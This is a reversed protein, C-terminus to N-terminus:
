FLRWGWKNFYRAASRIFNLVGSLSKHAERQWGHLVLADPCYITRWGARQLARSLDADEFYLFYREDFGGVAKLAGTRCAMFAGSSFPVDCPKDYGVDLMEYREMRKRFVPRLPRPMFRRLFLDWLTPPRRNLPQLRGDEFHVRPSVIAVDPQHRLVNVLADLAGPMVTIDPNCFVHWTSDVMALIKNHGGGFGANSDNVVATVRPDGAALRANVQATDDPSQNDILIVRGDVDEPMAALASLVATEVLGASRYTVIGITLREREPTM